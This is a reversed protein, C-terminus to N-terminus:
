AFEPICNGSPPEQPFQMGSRFALVPHAKRSLDRASVADRFLRESQSTNERDLGEPFSRGPIQARFPVHNGRPGFCGGAERSLIM